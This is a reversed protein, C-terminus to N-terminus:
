AVIGAKKTLKDFRKQADDRNRYTWGFRGWASASPMTEAAPIERGGLVYTEHRQVIVVEYRPESLEPKSQEYLAVDGTRKLQWYDFGKSRFSTKLPIYAPKEPALLPAPIAIRM